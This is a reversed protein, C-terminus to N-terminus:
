LRVVQACNVSLKVWDDHTIQQRATEVTRAKCDSELFLINGKPPLNETTRYVGNEVLLVTDHEAVLEFWSDSRTDRVIYLISQNYESSM